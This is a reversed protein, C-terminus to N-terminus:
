IKINILKTSYWRAENTLNDSLTDNMNVSKSFWKHNNKDLSAYTEGLQSIKKRHMM